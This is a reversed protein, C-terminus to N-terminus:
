FQMHLYCEIETVLVAETVRVEDNTDVGSKIQKIKGDKIKLFTIGTTNIYDTGEAQM